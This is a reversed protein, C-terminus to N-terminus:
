RSRFAEQHKAAARAKSDPDSALRVVEGSEASYMADQSQHVSHEALCSLSSM